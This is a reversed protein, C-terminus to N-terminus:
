LSRELKKKLEITELSAIEISYIKNLLYEEKFKLIKEVYIIKNEGTYEKKQQSKSNLKM